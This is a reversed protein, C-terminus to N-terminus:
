TGDSGGALMRKADEAATAFARISAYEDRAGQRRSCSRSVNQPCTAAYYGRGHGGVRVYHIARGCAVCPKKAKKARELLEEPLDPFDIRAQGKDHLALGVRLYPALERFLPQDLLSASETLRRERQLLWFEVCWCVFVIALALGIFIYGGTTM